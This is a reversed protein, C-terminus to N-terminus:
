DQNINAIPALSDWLPLATSAFGPGHLSGLSLQGHAVNLRPRGQRTQYLDPHAEGQHQALAYPTQAGAEPVLYAQAACRLAQRLQEFNQAHSLQPHKDFWKPVMLEASAGDVARGNIDLSVRAFAQPCETVTAAGFRFPLRLTVPREHLSVACVRVRAVNLSISM